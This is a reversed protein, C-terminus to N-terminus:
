TRLPTEQNLIAVWRKARRIWTTSEIVRTSPFLKGEFNGARVTEYTLIVANANAMHGQLDEISNEELTRGHMTAIYDPQTLIGSQFIMLADAPVLKAFNGANKERAAKWVERELRMVKRIIEIKSRASPTRENSKRPEAKISSGGSAGSRPFQGKDRFEVPM